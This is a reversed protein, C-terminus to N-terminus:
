GKTVTYGNRTLFVIANSIADHEHQHEELTLATLNEPTNNTPDGDVHHVQLGECSGHFAEFVLRHVKRYKRKSAICLTVGAYNGGNNHLKLPKLEDGVPAHRNFNRKSYIRGNDGAYYGPFGPIPKVKM